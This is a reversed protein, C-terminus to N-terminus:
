YQNHDKSSIKSTYQKAGMRPKKRAEMISGQNLKKRIINFNNEFYLNYMLKKRIINFNNELHLNYMLKKRIINFNNELYLNYM